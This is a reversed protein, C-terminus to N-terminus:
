PSPRCTPRSANLSTAPRCSSSGTRTQSTWSSCTVLAGARKYATFALHPDCDECYKGVVASDYFATAKLFSEPERDTHIYLMAIVNQLSPDNSGEAGRAEFWPLLLWLKMREEVEAVLPEIPCAGRVSWLINNNFDESRDPDILACIVKPCHMPNVRMIVELLDHEMGLNVMSNVVELLDREKHVCVGYKEWFTEEKRLIRGALQFLNRRKWRQWWPSSPALAM